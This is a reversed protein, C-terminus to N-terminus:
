QDWTTFELQLPTTIPTVPGLATLVRLLSVHGDRRQVCLVQDGQIAQAPPITQGPSVSQLAGVCADHDTTPPLGGVLKAGNLPQLSRLVIVVIGGSPATQAVFHLDSAPASALAGVGGTDLNLGQDPTLSVTTPGTILRPRATVVLDMRSNRPVSSQAVPTQAVVIQPTAAISVRTTVTGVALGSAQVTAQANPQTQGVVDPTTINRLLLFAVVGAIVLVAAAIAAFVWWPIRKWWPIEPPPPPPKPVEFAVTPGRGYQEDPNQVGVEDLRFSYSGPAATDPVALDVTYQQTPQQTTTVPFDREADGEISLWPAAAPDPTELRARGRLTRGSVNTVTFSAKGQRKSDLTVSSSAVTIAFVPQVADAMPAAAPAAEQGEEAMDARESPPM